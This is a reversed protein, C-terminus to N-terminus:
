LQHIELIKASGISQCVFYDESYYVRSATCSHLFYRDAGCKRRKLHVKRVDVWRQM